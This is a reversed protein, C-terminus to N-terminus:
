ASIAGLDDVYHFRTETGERCMNGSLRLQFLIIIVLHYLIAIFNTLIAVFLCLM